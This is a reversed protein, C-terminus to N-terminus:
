AANRMQEHSIKIRNLIWQVCPVAMSNGLAKYQPGDAAPKGRYTIACHDDPFGQLRHCETPTLRRVAWGEALAPPHAGAALPHCPGGPRPNSYNAASTIQTTDFAVAQPVTRAELTYAADDTRFGAGDPCAGPNECVAREQIAIAAHGGANQNSSLHGMSRLPPSVGSQDHQVETGKCDFAVPVLNDRDAQHALHPQARLAHAVPVLPTARGTGDESADFGEGRLTHAIMTETEFDQRGMVGANLCHAVSGTSTILGGDCDFDTGLGGGGKTRAALTPAAREGTERRPPSDGRLRDPELLVAAPDVCNGFDIVVFLRRRRQAVGFWQADLVAWAARARPGEVMGEGPWKPRHHPEAFETEGTPEGDDGLIDIDGGKHWKWFKSSKGPMPREGPTLADLAGVIGALFCGFANGKDSLVGPVNEWLVALKGDPRAAVLEHLIEVFKLTLNGRADDTGKRLGAVSFAQCPTGAVLLDPLPVGRQRLLDPNIETMDGWLLPDGQNHDEPLRYGFREQLVARPFPEIESALRWDVWPAAMEPAGIGSCFTAGIM